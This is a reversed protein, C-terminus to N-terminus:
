ESVVVDSNHRVVYVPEGREDFQPNGENDVVRQIKQVTTKLRVTGGDLLEYVNWDEKQIKFEREIGYIEQGVAHIREIRGPM